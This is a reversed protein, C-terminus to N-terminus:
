DNDGDDESKEEPDLGSDGHFLLKIKDDIKIKFDADILLTGNQIKFASDNIRYIKESYQVYAPILGSDMNELSIERKPDERILKTVEEVLKDWERMCLNFNAGKTAEALKIHETGANKIKCDANNPDQGAAQGVMSHVRSGPVPIKFDDALNGEGTGNDDSTIIIDIRSNPDAARFGDFFQNLVSIANYSGIPMNTQQVMSAVDAPITLNVKNFDYILHLQFPVNTGKLDSIFKPISNELYTIENKMSGSSDIGVFVEVPQVSKEIVFDLSSLLLDEELVTDTTLPTADESQKENIELVSNVGSTTDSSKFKARCSSALLVALIFYKM